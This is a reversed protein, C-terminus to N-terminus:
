ATEGRTSPALARPASIFRPRKEADLAQRMARDLLGTQFERTLAGLRTTSRRAALRGERWARAMERLAAAIAEVDENDAQWVHEHRALFRAAAGGRPTIALIPRRSGLYEFLKSSLDGGTGPGGALLLVNAAAQRMLAAVEGHTLEGLFSVPLSTCAAEIMSHYAGTRGAFVLRTVRAAAADRQALLALAELLAQPSRGAYLSGAHLLVMVGSPLAPPSRQPATTSVAANSTDDAFDRPEFGNLVTVFRGAPIRPYREQFRRTMEASVSVIRRARRMVCAEMWRVLARTWPGRWQPAHAYEVWPDRFEATWTVRLRLSAAMAILHDSFPMASSHILDIRDRRHIQSVLQLVRPLRRIGADPLSIAELGHQLRWKAGRYLRTTIGSFGQPLAIGSPTARSFTPVRYVRIGRPSNRGDSEHGRRRAPTGRTVVTVRWGLAALHRATAAARTAGPGTEPPFRSALLLVHRGRAGEARRHAPPTASQSPPAHESAPM